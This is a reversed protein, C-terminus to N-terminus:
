LSDQNIQELVMGLFSSCCFVNQHNHRISDNGRWQPFFNILKQTKKNISTPPLFLLLCELESIETIIDHVITVAWSLGVNTPLSLSTQPIM